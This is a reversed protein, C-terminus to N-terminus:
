SSEATKLFVFRLRKVPGGKASDNWLFFANSVLCKRTFTSEETTRSNAYREISRCKGYNCTYSDASVFSDFTVLSFFESEIFFLTIM